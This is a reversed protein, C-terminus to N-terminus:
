SGDVEGRRPEALGQLQHDHGSAHGFHSLAKETHWVEVAVRQSIADRREEGLKGVPNRSDGMGMVRGAEEM